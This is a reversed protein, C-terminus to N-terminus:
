PTQTLFTAFADLDEIKKGHNDVVIPIALEDALGHIALEALGASTSVDFFEYSANAADLLKKIQICGPCTQTGFVKYSGNLM